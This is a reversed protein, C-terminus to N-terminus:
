VLLIGLLKKWELGLSINGDIHSSFITRLIESNERVPGINNKQSYICKLSESGWGFSKVSM